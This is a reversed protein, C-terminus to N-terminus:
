QNFDTYPELEAKFEALLNPNVPIKEALEEQKFIARQNQWLKVLHVKHRERDM